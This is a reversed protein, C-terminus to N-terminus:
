GLGGYTLVRWPLFRRQWANENAITSAIGDGPGSAQMVREFDRPNDLRRNGESDVATLWNPGILVLLVDCSGVAERIYPEFKVGPPIAEIDM